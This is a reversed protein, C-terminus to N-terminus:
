TVTVLSIVRGLTLGLLLPLGPTTGKINATENAPLVLVGEGVQIHGSEIRGAVTLGSGQGVFCLQGYM